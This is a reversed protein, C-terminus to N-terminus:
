NTLEFVLNKAMEISISNELDNMDKNPRFIVDVLKDKFGLELYIELDNLL